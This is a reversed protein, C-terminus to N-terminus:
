AKKSCSHGELSLVSTIYLTCYYLSLKAKTAQSLKVHWPDARLSSSNSVIIVICREIYQTEQFLSHSPPLLVGLALTGQQWQSPAPRRSTVLSWPILQELNIRSGKTIYFQYLYKNPICGQPTVHKLICHKRQLRHMLFALMYTCDAYYSVTMATSNQSM